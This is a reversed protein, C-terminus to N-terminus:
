VEKRLALMEQAITLLMPELCLRQDDYSGNYREITLDLVKEMMRSTNVLTTEISMGTALYATVLSGALDGTGYFRREFHRHLFLQSHGEASLWYFGIQDKQKPNDPHAGTIVVHHVGTELLREAIQHIENLSLDERYPYNTMLCAETLNPMVVDALSIFNMMQEAVTHDFGKYYQGLDGMIPDVILLLKTNMKKRIAYHEHLTKIQESDAFYGTLYLSFDVEIEEWHRLMAKFDDGLQHRVVQGRGSAFTSLLLTPLLAVELQAAALVPLNINAAVKGAGPLDNVVLVRNNMQNM